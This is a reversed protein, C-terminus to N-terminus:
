YRRWEDNISHLSYRGITELKIPLFSPRAFLPPIGRVKYDSQPWSAYIDAITQYHPRLFKLPKPVSTMSSTATRILTKLTELSPQYM